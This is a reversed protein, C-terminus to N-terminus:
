KGVRELWQNGTELTTRFIKRSPIGPPCSVLAREVLSLLRAKNAPNWIARDGGKDRLESFLAVLARELDDGWRVSVVCRNWLQVRWVVKGEDQGYPKRVLRASVRLQMPNPNM